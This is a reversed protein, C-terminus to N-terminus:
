APRVLREITALKHETERWELHPDSGAVIGAGAFAIVSDGLVLASRIGVCVETVAGLVGIPGAYLGRDFPECARIITRAREAPQGCVAPTPHLRQLLEADGVGERLTADVPTCLHQVRALRLLRAGRAVRIAEVAGDLRERIRDLVLAHERLDKESAFLDQAQAWDREPTEGRPRTGAVAESELRTGERRFLREPSAGVFAAGPAPEVMFQYTGPESEGLRCLLECPDAPEALRFTRTRALVIKRVSGSAIEHLTARVALNWAEESSDVGHKAQFGPTWETLSTEPDHLREAAAVRELVDLTARVDGFASAALTTGAPGRRLEIAPLLVQARGFAEWEIGPERENDFRGLLFATTGPHAHLIAALEPDGPVLFTRAAGVIAVANVGDRSRFYARAGPRQAALFALPEVGDIGVEHRCAAGRGDRALTAELRERLQRLATGLATSSAHAGPRVQPGVRSVDIDPAPGTAGLRHIHWGGAHADAAM